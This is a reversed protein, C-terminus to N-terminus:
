PGCFYTAIRLIWDNQQAKPDKITSDPFCSDVDSPAADGFQAACGTTVTDGYSKCQKGLSANVCTSFDPTTTTDCSSCAADQCGYSADLSKGCSTNPVVLDLCGPVNFDLTQGDPSVLPGWTADSSQTEICAGCTAASQGQGFQTCKTKDAGSICAVYDSLNQTTCKNQHKGSPPSYNRPTYGTTDIPGCAGSGDPTPLQVDRKDTSADVIPVNADLPVEPVVKTTCGYSLAVVFSLVLGVAIGQSPRM